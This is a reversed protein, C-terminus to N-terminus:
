NTKFLGLIRNINKINQKLFKKYSKLMDLDEDTVIFRLREPLRNGRKEILVKKANMFINRYESDIPHSKFM